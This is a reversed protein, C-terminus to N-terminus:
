TGAPSAGSRCRPRAPPPSWESAGPSRLHHQKKLSLNEPSHIWSERGEPSPFSHHSERRRMKVLFFIFILSHALCFTYLKVFCEGSKKTKKNLELKWYYFNSNEHFSFFPFDLSVISAEVSLGVAKLSSNKM